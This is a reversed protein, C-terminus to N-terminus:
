HLLSRLVLGTLVGVAATQKRDLCGFVLALRCQAVKLGAALLSDSRVRLVEESDARLTTAELATRLATTQRECLSVADQCVRRPIASTDGVSAHITDLIGVLGAFAAQLSDARRRDRIATAKLVAARPAWARNAHLVATTTATWTDSGDSKSLLLVLLVGAIAGWLYRTHAANM